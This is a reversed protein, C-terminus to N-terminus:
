SLMCEPIEVLFDSAKQVWTCALWSNQHSMSSLSPICQLSVGLSKTKGDKCCKIIVCRHVIFICKVGCILLLLWAAFLVLLAACIWKQVMNIAGPKTIILFFFFTFLYIYIFHQSAPVVENIVTIVWTFKAVTRHIKWYASKLLSVCFLM